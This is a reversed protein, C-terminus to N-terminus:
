ARTLIKAGEVTNEWAGTVHRFADHRAPDLADLSLALGRVGEAKLIRALNETIKVGNTGVVIWLGQAAGYRIIDLIDRRLLPEGGTLITVCEPAFAAVDDIVRFCEDTSLESRDAFNETGVL